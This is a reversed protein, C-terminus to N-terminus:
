WSVRRDTIYEGDFYLRRTGRVNNEEYYENPDDGNEEDPGYYADTIIVDQEMSNKDIDKCSVASIGLHEGAALIRIDALSYKPCLATVMQGVFQEPNDVKLPRLDAQTEDIDFVFYGTSGNYLSFSYSSLIYNNLDSDIFLDDFDYCDFVRDSIYFKDYKANVGGCYKASIEGITYGLIGQPDKKRENNISNQRILLGGGVGLIVFGVISIIIKITLNKDKAPENM